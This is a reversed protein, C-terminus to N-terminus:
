KGNEKNIFIKGFMVFPKINKDSFFYSGGGLSRTSGLVTFNIKGFTKFDVRTYKNSWDIYCLHTRGEYKVKILSPKFIKFYIRKVYYSLPRAQTIKLDVYYNLLKM